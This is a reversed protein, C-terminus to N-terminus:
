LKVTWHGQVLELGDSDQEKVREVLLSAERQYNELQAKKVPLVKGNRRYQQYIAEGDKNFRVHIRYTVEGTEIENQM